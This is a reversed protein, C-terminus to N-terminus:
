VGSARRGDYPSRYGFRHIEVIAFHRSSSAAHIPHTSRRLERDGVLPRGHGSRRGSPQQGGDIMIVQSDIAHASLQSSRGLELSWSHRSLDRTLM